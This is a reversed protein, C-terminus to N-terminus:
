TDRRRYFNLGLIRFACLAETYVYPRHIYSERVGYADILTLIIM